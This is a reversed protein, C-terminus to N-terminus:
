NNYKLHTLTYKLQEGTYFCAYIGSYDISVVKNAFSPDKDVEYITHLYTELANAEARTKFTAVILKETPSFTKDTYSGFYDDDEILCDCTRSGIYKRGGIEYSIYVYHNRM